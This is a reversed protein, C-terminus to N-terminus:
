SVKKLKLVFLLLIVSATILALYSQFLVGLFEEFYTFSSWSTVRSNFVARNVFFCGIIFISITIFNRIVNNVKKLLYFFLPVVVIITSYKLVESIFSCGLCTSSAENKFEYLSIFSQVACLIYCIIIMPIYQVRKKKINLSFINKKRM